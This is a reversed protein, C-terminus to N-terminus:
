FQVSILTRVEGRADKALEGDVHDEIRKDLDVGAMEMWRDFSFMVEENAGVQQHLATPSM